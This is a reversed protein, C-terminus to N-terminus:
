SMLVKRIANAFGIDFLKRRKGNLIEGHPGESWGEEKLFKPSIAQELAQKETDSLGASSMVQIVQGSPTVNVHGPLTRRDVVINANARLLKVEGLLTDREAIVMAVLSRLAPDAIKRLFADTESPTDRSKRKASPKQKGESVNAWAQILQKFDESASNYLARRSIGGREESMRGVTALSFDASGLRSLEECVKHVIELNARKQPRADASLETFIKAPDIKSM